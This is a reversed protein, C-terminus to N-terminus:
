GLSDKVVAEPVTKPSVERLLMSKPGSINKEGQRLSDKIIRASDLRKAQKELRDRVEVYMQQIDSSEMYYASSQALQTSDVGYKNLIYAQPDFGKEEYEKINKNMAADIKALDELINVMKNKGILREPKEAEDINQCAAFLIFILFYIYTKM